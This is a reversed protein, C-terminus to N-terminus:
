VVSTVGATASSPEYMLVSASRPVNLIEHVITPVSSYHSTMEPLRTSSKGRHHGEATRALSSHVHNLEEQLIQQFYFLSM